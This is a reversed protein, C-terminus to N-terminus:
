AVKGRYCQLIQDAERDYFRHGAETPEVRPLIQTEERPRTLRQWLEKEIGLAGKDIGLIQSPNTEIVIDNTELWCHHIREGRITTVQGFKREWPIGLKDFVKGLLVASQTCGAYVTPNARIKGQACEMLNHVDEIAPSM